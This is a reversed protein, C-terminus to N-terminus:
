MLHTERLPFLHVKNCTEIKILVPTIALFTNKINKTVKVKVKVQNEHFNLPLTCHYTGIHTHFITLKCLFSHGTSHVCVFVCVFLCVYVCVFLSVLMSGFVITKSLLLCVFMCVSWCVESFSLKRFYCVCLCVSQGVYKRFRYNEFTIIYPFSATQPNKCHM